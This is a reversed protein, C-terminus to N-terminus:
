GLMAKKISRYCYPNVIPHVTYVSKYLAMAQLKTWYSSLSCKLWLMKMGTHKVMECKTWHIM